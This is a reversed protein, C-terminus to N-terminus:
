PTEGKVHLLLILVGYVVANLWGPRRRLPMIPEWAQTQEEVSECHKLLWLLIYLGQGSLVLLFTSALAHPAPCLKKKRIVLPRFSLLWHGVTPFVCTQLKQEKAEHPFACIDEASRCNEQSALLGTKLGLNVM